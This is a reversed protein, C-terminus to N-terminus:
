KNQNKRRYMTTIKFRTGDMCVSESGSVENFLDVSQSIRLFECRVGEYQDGCRMRMKREFGNEEFEEPPLQSMISSFGKILVGMFFYIQMDAVQDSILGILQIMLYALLSSQKSNLILFTLSILNVAVYLCVILSGLVLKKPRRCRKSIATMFICMTSNKLRTQTYLSALSLFPSLANLFILIDAYSDMSSRRTSLLLLMLLVAVLICMLILMVYSAHYSGDKGRRVAHLGLFTLASFLPPCASEATLGAADEENGEEEKGERPVFAHRVSSVNGKRETPIKYSSLKSVSYVGTLAPPPVEDAMEGELDCDSVLYRRM